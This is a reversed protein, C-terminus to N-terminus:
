RSILEWIKEFDEQYSLRSWTDCFNPNHFIAFANVVAYGNKKGDLSESKTYLSELHSKILHSNKEIYENYLNFMYPNELYLDKKTTALLWLWDHLPSESNNPQWTFLHDFMRSIWRLALNEFVDEKNSYYKYIAAHSVNLMKSVSSLTTTEFGQKIILSETVDLILEKSLKM